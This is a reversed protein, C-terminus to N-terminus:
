FIEQPRIVTWGNRKLLYLQLTKRPKWESLIVAKARHYKAVAMLRTIDDTTPWPANGGKVQILVIDFLDGRKVMSDQMRHNKRIALLDVVGRSESNNPGLFNVVHWKAGNKHNRTILWKTMIKAWRATRHAKIGAEEWKKAKKDNVKQM